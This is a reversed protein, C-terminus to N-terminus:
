AANTPLRDFRELFRLFVTHGFVHGFVAFIGGLFQRVSETFLDIFYESGFFGFDHGYSPRPKRASQIYPIGGRRPRSKEHGATRGASAPLTASIGNAPQPQAVNGRRNVAPTQERVQPLSCRRKPTTGDDTRYPDTGTFLSLADDGDNGARPGNQSPRGIKPM